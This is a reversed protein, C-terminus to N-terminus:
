EEARWSGWIRILLPLLWRIALEMVIHRPLERAFRPHAVDGRLYVHRKLIMVSKREPALCAHITHDRLM